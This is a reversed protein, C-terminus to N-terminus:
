MNNENISPIFMDDFVDLHMKYIISEEFGTRTAEISMNGTAKELRKRTPPLLPIATHM